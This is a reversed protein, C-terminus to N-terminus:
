RDINSLKEKAKLTKEIVAFPIELLKLIPAIGSFMLRLNSMDWRNIAGVLPLSILYIILFLLVGVSLMIWSATSFAHLFLYAALGAIASAFFIRASSRFDGKTEYKKWTWYIGLVTSVGGVFTGVLIVGPIGLPPIVLFALPVGICLALVNLKLLMKSEGMAYLLRNYSLSGLLVVLNGAVYLTLFFPASLWKQGYITGVMPVSLVMIAVVVPVLFLSSYKISSAFITKLLEKDKSPNLKSFAPFLVTQLPYIFFSLLIAFNVAISYNGIMTVDVSSAMVFSYVQASIGGILTAISLPVGYSLLSKLTQVMKEKNVSGLPLKRFIVFYLLLIGSIGSAISASTFGVVAGFAGFGLYVLLPSLLGQIISSVIMTITCLGMREFGVFISLSAAYVATSIISISSLSILFSSEPNNFIASAILNAMILLLLALVLGTMVEFIFGSVIVSRLESQKQSARYNACYKTLASGVGWDQFLLFTAAPVLAITYIGYDGENIYLGVIIAGIALMLASAIRGIFLQFTGTASAKGMDMAKDLANERRNKVM